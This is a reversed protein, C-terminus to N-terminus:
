GVQWTWWLAFGLLCVEGFALVVLVFIFSTIVRTSERAGDTGPARVSM